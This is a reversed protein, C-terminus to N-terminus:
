ASQLLRKSRRVALNYRQADQARKLTIQKRWNRNLRWMSLPFLCSLDWWRQCLPLFGLKYATADSIKLKKVGVNYDGFLQGLICSQAYRMNLKQLSVRYQWDPCKRDLFAMGRQIRKTISM